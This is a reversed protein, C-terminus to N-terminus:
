QNEGLDGGNKLRTYDDPRDIDQAVAQQGCAIERVPSEDMLVNIGQEATLQKVQEAFQWPLLVPHGHKNQYTPLLITPSQGDHQSLLQEHESLLRDIVTSSLNPIDAPAMLWVDTPAPSFRNEIHKLGLLVSDKMQPPAPDTVVVEAGHKRAIDILPQNDQCAVVVIQTVNSAQWTALVHDILTASGWPMLLKPQGMRQSKGAAPILAFSNM